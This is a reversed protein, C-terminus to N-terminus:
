FIQQSPLICLTSTYTYTSYTAHVYIHQKTASFAKPILAARTNPKKKYWQYLHKQIRTEWIYGLTFFFFFFTDTAYTYTHSYYQASWYYIILIIITSKHVAVKVEFFGQPVSRTYTVVSKSKKQQINVRLFYSRKYKGSANKKKKKKRFKFVKQYIFIDM